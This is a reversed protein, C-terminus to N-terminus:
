DGTLLLQELERMARREDADAHDWGCIHLVGHVVLLRLEHAASWRVDGTQGGRGVDAQESAREVSIVIDGLHQRQGPPLVFDAAPGGASGAQQGPHPPFADPSLLPFSLVDTPGHEGMHKENLGTIEADNTLIVALSAPSPAGASDLARAATRAVGAASTPSHVGERTTVDIRWPAIYVSPM